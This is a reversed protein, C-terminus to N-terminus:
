KWLKKMSVNKDQDKSMVKAVALEFDEQTIHVRRERLAFMGAETCVAKIEAGSCNSTKEAVKKLNIGRTMNMKRSHIRLIEYRATEDPAPFEIKRDIRGPRLLAEDLVDIRNTAMIVKISQTAEFGDLQNLLELMTRQVESDHKGSELRSSGISDIEDMFIISPSHERAMVFLERVMRAGEGIYKQVLEAGSVRIFTCETHHAVVRALLTKGTGPPGYLLVGKPQAIGLAEFLEPHKVPLEIVEKIEKVQRSLGGIEDYTSDTGAKEVKMLSVLPDVKTPLIYHIASSGSRLAVRTNPTLDALEVNKEVDVVMKGQDSGVKVLVKEKGMVKVVDAVVSGSEQLMQVEEKLHRVRRNPDNRQAEM